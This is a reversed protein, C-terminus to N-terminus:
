LHAQPRFEHLASPSAGFRTEFLVPFNEALHAILKHPPIYCSAPGDPLDVVLSDVTGTGFLRALSRSANGARANGIKAILPDRV